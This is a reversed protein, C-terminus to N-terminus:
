STCRLNAMIQASHDQWYQEALARAGASINKANLTNVIGTMKRVSFGSGGCGRQQLSAQVLGWAAAEDPNLQGAPIHPAISVIADIEGRQAAERAHKIAANVDVAVGDCGSYECFALQQESNALQDQSARLSDGASVKAAGTGAAGEQGAIIAWAREFQAQPFGAAAAARLRQQIDTMNNASGSMLWLSAGDSQMAQATVRSMVDDQDVQECATHVARSFAEDDRMVTAFWVADIAPVTQVNQIQSTVYSRVVEEDRGLWWNQLAIEGLINVSAADGAQAKQKLDAVVGAIDLDALRSLQDETAGLQRL